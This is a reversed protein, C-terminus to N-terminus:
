EIGDLPFFRDIFEVHLRTIGDKGLRKGRVISIISVNYQDSKVRVFSGIDANLTTFVAAGGLSINETVTMESGTTIRGEDDVTELVMGVPIAFRTHRRCDKPLTSEDPADGAEVIQWLNQDNVQTIDYLKAPDHIYSSPPNRGIFAVGVAYAENGNKQNVPICRRVLAWVKYQPEMYDYCRLQRPLPITMQVLRGRKLPRRLNFGAGFASVDNLRTVEDWSYSRNVKSEIRVPLALSVRQIRRDNKKVVPSSLM